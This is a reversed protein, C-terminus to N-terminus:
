KERVALISYAQEMNFRYVIDRIPDDERYEYPIFELPHLLIKEKVEFGSEEIFFSLLEPPIPKKHTPDMNFYYTATLINQPNPTEIILMGGRKLVRHCERILKIIDMMEIHEVMHFSTIMDVSDDCLGTLYDMAFSEIIDISANIKKVKKIVETNGDIGTAHFGNEQLLEIWECEGSGLDIINLKNKERGTAWINIKDVYVEARKKVSERSDGMLKENYRVYFKDMLKKEKIERKEKEKVIQENTYTEIDKEKDIREFKNIIEKKVFLHQANLEELRNKTEIILTNLYILRRPLLIINIIWKIIYRIIPIRSILKRLRYKFEQSKLHTIYIQKEEMEESSLVSKIILFKNNSDATIQEICNKKAIQDVPRHLILSYVTEVFEEGNLTLLKRVDVRNRNYFDLYKNKLFPRLYKKYKPLKCLYTDVKKLKFIMKGTINLRSQLVRHIQSNDYNDDVKSSLERIDDMIKEITIQELNRDHELNGTKRITQRIDQLLDDLNSIEM